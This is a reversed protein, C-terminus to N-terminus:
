RGATSKKLPADAANEKADAPLVVTFESDKLRPNLEVGGYAAEVTSPREADLFPSTQGPDPTITLTFGRVLHDKPDLRYQLIRRANDQQIDMKLVDANGQEGAEYSTAYKVLSDKELESLPDAERMLVSFEPGRLSGPLVLMDLKAPAKIRQFTNRASNYLTLTKGDCAYTLHWRGTATVEPYDVNLYFRNPKQYRFDIRIQKADERSKAWQSQVVQERYSHLAHYGRVMKERLASSAPDRPVAPDPPTANDARLPSPNAVFLSLIGASLLLRSLVPM